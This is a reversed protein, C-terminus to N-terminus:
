GRSIFIAAVRRPPIKVKLEGANAGAQVPTGETWSEPAKTSGSLRIGIELNQEQDLRNFVLALVGSPHELLRIEPPTAGSNAQVRVPSSVGAWAFVQSMFDQFGATSQSENAIGLFSGALLTEGKGHRNGILAPRGDLFTGVIRAHPSTPTLVEEYIAGFIETPPDVRKQTRSTQIPKTPIASASIAGILRITTKARPRVELERCGFLLDLGGGPITPTAWGREDNWAARAEALVRGGNEVFRRLEGTSKSSLMLPYPVILLEYDGWNRQEFDAAHVFDVPVNAEFFARYYGFLSDRIGGRIGGSQEGGVLHALPNYLIAAEAKAPQASLFFDAHRNLISAISGARRARPTINGDLEILGYGGSEYGSSMPYYAYYSISRAGRAVASWTWDEIDEATVPEGVKVGTTGFGAQLEGIYFGGNRRGSSRIFDLSGARRLLSWPAASSSHKPYISTGYYDAAAAMKWDDPTGDGAYPSTFISPVAAHSTAPHLPDVSKAARVRDRLDDALKDSIFTKWDIYDSYSLITGFRPPEVQDWRQFMRYWATNLGQLGGYKKSLWSRFKAITNACFCFQADPIYNIIAWNIIHPESWLDYAYFSRHAVARQAVARYFAAVRRAIEPHDTCFGPAAQSPIVAGSQAVFRSDPYKEGLWDPASDVYIQILVRLGTEDALELLQDLNTFNYQGEERESSAWEVWTKIAPFGLSKIQELDRKWSARNARGDPEQMPARAKGGGYWVAIPYVGSEPPAAAGFNAFAFPLTLGVLLISRIEFPLNKIARM